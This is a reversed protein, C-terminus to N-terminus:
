FFLKDKILPGSVYADYVTEMGHNSQNYSYLEGAHHGVRTVLPNAYYTNKPDSTWDTPQWQARAGFHWQNSGTRGIQNIVGGISRGYKAGYGSIFTQQQEISGYPLGVGGQNDLVASALMGDIYYQNEATSAGGFTVAGTGLPGGVLVASGPQVGPALMAIDEASRGLPLEQLQKQTITLVQNTTTVDIAPIATATVNIASLTQANAATSAFNVTVAGAAVPAVDTQTQVVQGNQLLSVTYTGVPLTVSYQGSPGVTITRNYGAGGTIQVSENPAVPVTGQITGNVAQAFASGGFALAITGGIALALAKRQFVNPCHRARLSKSKMTHGEQTSNCACHAHAAAAKSGGMACLSAALRDTPQM